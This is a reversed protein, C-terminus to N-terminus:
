LATHAEILVQRSDVTGAAIENLAAVCVKLDGQNPLTTAHGTALQRARSAAALTLEFRNPTTEMMKQIDVQHTRM